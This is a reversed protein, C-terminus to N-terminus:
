LTGGGAGPAPTSLIICTARVSLWGTVEATRSTITQNNRHLINITLYPVALINLISTEKYIFPFSPFYYRMVIYIHVCIYTYIYTCIHMYIHTYICTYIHTYTYADILLHIDTYM